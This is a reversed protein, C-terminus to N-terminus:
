LLSLDNEKIYLSANIAYKQAFAQKIPFSLIAIICMIIVPVKIKIFVKKIQQNMKWTM